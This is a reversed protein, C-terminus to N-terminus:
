YLQMDLGAVKNFLSGFLYRGTFIAFNKYVDKKVSCRWHSIRAKCSEEDRDYGFARLFASVKNWILKSQEQM